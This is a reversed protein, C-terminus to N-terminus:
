ARKGDTDIEFVICDDTMKLIVGRMVRELRDSLTDAPPSIKITSIVIGDREVELAKILKRESAIM